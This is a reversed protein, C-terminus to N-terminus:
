NGRSSSDFVYEIKPDQGMLEEPNESLVMAWRADAPRRYSQYQTALASIRKGEEGEPPNRPPGETNKALFQLGDGLSILHEKYKPIESNQLSIFGCSLHQEWPESSTAYVDRTIASLIYALLKKMREDKFKHSTEILIPMEDGGTRYPIVRVEGGSKENIEKAVVRMREAIEKLILDAGEHHYKDNADKLKDLDIYLMGLYGDKKEEGFADIDELFKRRNGLKTLSDHRAERELDVILLVDTVITKVFNMLTNTDGALDLIKGVGTNHLESTHKWILYWFHENSEYKTIVKELQKGWEKERPFTSQQFQKSMEQFRKKYLQITAKVHERYAEKDQSLNLEGIDHINTM